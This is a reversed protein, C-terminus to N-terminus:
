NLVCMAPCCSKIIQTEAVHGATVLGPHQGTKAPELIPKSGMDSEKTLCGIVPDSAALTM